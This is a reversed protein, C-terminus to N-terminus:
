WSVHSISDQTAWATDFSEGPKDYDWRLGGNAFKVLVTDIYFVDREDGTDPGDNTTASWNFTVTKDQTNIVLDSIAVWLDPPVTGETEVVGGSTTYVTSQPQTNITFGSLGVDSCKLNGEYPTPNLQTAGSPALTAFSVLLLGAAM